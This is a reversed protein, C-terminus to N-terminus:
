SDAKPVNIRFTTGEGVTSSVTIEGRHEEIMERVLALGIGTGKESEKTTFGTQFIMGLHEEAIGEGTDRIEVIM